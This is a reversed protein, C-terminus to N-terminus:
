RTLVSTNNRFVIWWQLESRSTRLSKQCSPPGNLRRGLSFMIQTTNACINEHTSRRGVQKSIYKLGQRPEAKFAKPKAPESFDSARGIRGM